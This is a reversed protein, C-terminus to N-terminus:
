LQVCIQSAAAWLSASMTALSSIDNTWLCCKSSHCGESHPLFVLGVFSFASHCPQPLHHSNQQTVCTSPFLVPWWSWSSPLVSSFSGSTDASFDITAKKARVTYHHNHVMRCPALSHPFQPLSHLKGSNWFALSSLATGHFSPKACPLCQM